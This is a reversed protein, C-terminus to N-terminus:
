HVASFNKLAREHLKFVYRLGIKMAHSIEKWSLFALYRYELVRRENPEPVKAIAQSVKRRVELLHNIEEALCESQGDIAVVAQEVRSSLAAGNGTPTSHIVTTTRQALSQLRAIQELKSDAEQYAIFVQQLFEKETMGDVAKRHVLSSSAM